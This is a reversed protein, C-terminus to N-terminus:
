KAEIRNIRLKENDSPEQFFKTVERFVAENEFQAREPEQQRRQGLHELCVEDSAVIYTMLHEAGAADVLELFWKRQKPTNAPFDMVVNTGTQLINVVHNFVLPRLLASHHVYDDLSSIQDPYVHALWTDESILVANERQALEKSHTSKGAGMKGCFFYLTGTKM